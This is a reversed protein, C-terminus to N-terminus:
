SHNWRNWRKQPTPKTQGEKGDDNGKGDGGIQRFGGKTDPAKKLAPVDDLVKSLAATLKEDDIEGSDKVVDSFDALKLVYTVNEPAVNLKIAEVTAKQEIVAQVRAKNAADLQSQLEANNNEPAAPPKKNKLFESIASEAEEASVGKEEFFAKLASEKAKQKSKGVISDLESQTFTKESGNGGGQADNGGNQPETDVKTKEDAM